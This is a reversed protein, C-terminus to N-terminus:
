LASLYEGLRECGQTMTRIEPLISHIKKDGADYAALVKAGDFDVAALRVSFEGPDRSFASGPLLAVEAEKLIAECMAFSTQINRRHFAARYLEFDPYLYFAGEPMHCDLKMKLLKQYVYTNILNCIDVTKNLYPEIASFQEYAALAAYQIPASVCSFTEMIIKDLADALINLKEPLLAVGLRYGGAAFLKSLGGTVITGEPYALAMSSHQESANFKIKAYIEDSLVIVHHKRCVAALEDFIAQPWVLGTPNNPNNLILLINEHHKLERCASDLADATLMYQNSQKTHVFRVQKNLLTAQPAYSVWTPTPLIVAGPLCYSIQYILEKSGPGVFVQQASFDYNFERTYYDAVAQCLAPLGRTPLYAKVAAQDRLAHQILEPVPFPSQGFGFHTIDRGAQQMHKVRQNIQLTASPQIKKLCPNISLASKSM